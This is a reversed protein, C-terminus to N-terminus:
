GRRHEGTDGRCGVERGDERAPPHTPSITCLTGGCLGVLHMPPLGKADDCGTGRGVWGGGKVVWVFGCLGVLHMKACLYDDVMADEMLAAM